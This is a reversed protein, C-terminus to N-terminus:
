RASRGRDLGVHEQFSGMNEGPPEPARDTDVEGLVEGLAADEPYPDGPNVVSRSSSDSGVPGVVREPLSKPTSTDDRATTSHTPVPTSNKTCASQLPWKM